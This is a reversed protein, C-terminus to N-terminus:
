GSGGGQALARRVRELQARHAPVEPRYRLAQEFHYAAGKLDRQQELVAGIASHVEASQPDYKEAELLQQLGDRMKGQTCLSFGLGVRAMSLNPQLVLAEKFYGDAIGFRRQLFEARGLDALVDPRHPALANAAALERAAGDFQQLRYLYLHGLKRHAEFSTPEYEVAKRYCEAARAFDQRQELAAALNVQATATSFTAALAQQWVSVSDKWVAIQQVTVAILGVAVAAGVALSWRARGATLDAVAWCIALIVGIQPFYTYRDAYAQSGVQILGIVPVLTGLYWLWGALLYPARGRLRISGITLTLLVLVSIISTEVPIGGSPLPGYIPHPYYIALNGPWVTKWLYIAYSVSANEIRLALPFTQLTGVASHEAQARYTLYVSCLVLLFLPLKEVLLKRVDYLAVFRQLPWWDLVLLLCPLTVLMPKCLLSLAFAVCVLAYCAISRREVYAAYMLLTLLGFAVSLVDKRESIWVVSEVRLPHVGFLLGAVASRWVAGTLCRLCLFVLATNCAHVVVNTLHFGWPKTGWLSADLQLSLWTLPHWNGNTFTTFAWESNTLSLGSTVHTNNVVYDPDDYNIFDCGLAPYFSALTAVVLAVAILIERSYRLRHQLNLLPM